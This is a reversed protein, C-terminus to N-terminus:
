HTQTLTQTLSVWMVLGSAGAGRRRDLYPLRVRVAVAVRRVRM